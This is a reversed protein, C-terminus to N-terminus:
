FYTLSLASLLLCLAAVATLRLRMPRYWAPLNQPLSRDQWLHAVFGCALAFCALAAPMLTCAWGLLAPIVSWLLRKQREKAELGPLLMAFVWHLAGIFSLIVAGYSVIAVAALAQFSAKSIILVTLAIFPLLGSYGLVTFRGPPLPSSLENM